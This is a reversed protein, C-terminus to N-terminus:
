IKAYNAYINDITKALTIDLLSIGNCFHSTLTIDVNNYINSWEPHHDIKEAELAIATMFSFAQVFNKFTFKKKIADRENCRDWNSKVLIKLSDEKEQSSQFIHQSYSSMNTKDIHNLFLRNTLSISPGSNNYSRATCSIQSKYKNVHPGTPSFEIINKNLNLRSKDVSSLNLKPHCYGRPRKAIQMLPRTNIGTLTKLSSIMTIGRLGKSSLKYPLNYYSLHDHNVLYIAIVILNHATTTTAISHHSSTIYM